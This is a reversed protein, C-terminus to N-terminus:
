HTCLLAGACAPDEAFAALASVDADPGLLGSVEVSIRRHRALHEVTQRCRLAPSSLVRAVPLASLHGVLAVAQAEGRLSLPRDDDPPAWSQKDLAEAHRLLVVMTQILDLM